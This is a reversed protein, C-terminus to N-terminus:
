RWDISAATMAQRAEIALDDFATMMEEFAPNDIFIKRLLDIGRIGCKYLEPIFDVLPASFDDAVTGQLRVDQGELEFMYEGENRVKWASYSQGSALAVVGQFCPGPFLADLNDALETAEGNANSFHLFGFPALDTRLAIVDADSLDAEDRYEGGSLRVSFFVRLKM